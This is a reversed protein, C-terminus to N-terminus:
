PAPVKTAKLRLFRKPDGPAISLSSKVTQSATLDALITENIDTTQWGTSGLTTNWEPVLTVDDRNKARSYTISIETASSALLIPSPQEFTGPLSNLKYEVLNPISDLDSDGNFGPDAVSFGAIWADFTPNGSSTLTITFTQSTIGGAINTLNVTVPYAGTAASSSITGSVLGTSPNLSLGPPLTSGSALSFLPPDILQNTRLRNVFLENPGSNPAGPTVGNVPAEDDTVTLIKSVTTFSPASVSINVERTGDPIENNITAIPFTASKQGAPIVVTAPVTASDADSSTLQFTLNATFTESLTVTALSASPGSIESVSSPSLSLGLLINPSQASSILVNDIALADSAGSGPNAVVGRYFWRLYIVTSRNDFIAPLPVNEFRTRTGSPSSGSYYYGGSVTNWVTSSNAPGATTYQLFFEKNTPQEDVKVVDYSIKLSTLGNTAALGLVIFSSGTSRLGIQSGYNFNGTAAETGNGLTMVDDNTVSSSGTQNYSTWGNPYGSGFPGPTTDFNQPYRGNSLTVLPNLSKESFDEAPIHRATNSGTKLWNRGEDAGLDSDGFYFAAKGASVVGINPTAEISSGYSLSHVIASTGNALFLSGGSSGFFPWSGTATDFYTTNGSSIVMKGSFADTTDAPLLSNKPAAGNYIVLLTGAPVADWVATNRFIVSNGLSDRFRWNRLSGTKMVLIEAWQSNSGDNGHSFEHIIAHRTVVTEVSSLVLGSQYSYAAGPAAFAAPRLTINIAPSFSPASTTHGDTATIRCRWLKGANSPSVPLASAVAGALNIFTTEDTSSQWQYALTVPENEPDNVSVSTLQLQTDAYLQGESNQSIGTIAPTQNVVTVTVPASNTFKSEIDTAKAVYTVNGLPPSHIFSYPAVTDTGVLLNNAFLEVKAVTSPEGNMDFDAASVDVPIAVGPSSLSANTPSNITVVPPPNVPAVSAGFVTLEAFTLAGATANASGRDAIKLIWTGSSLEGWNRASNFTWDSYNANLDPRVEALRSVMGSPSTLSIELEGRSQHTISLRLTVHETRLNSVPLSFQRTIGTVSENPITVNLSPQTSVATKHTGLTVWTNPSAMSVAATADVLGAGFNHNFHFGASNDSWDPDSPLIKKASRILIEQVDRWGLNPNEKLMLAVIGAVQPTSASTGGFTSTYDGGTASSSTNYGSAGTNDTTVISLGGSGSSPASVILNAGPEAYDARGGNSNTAGIAITYISNAFGDYNSNDKVTSRGGNGGAWVFIVGKGGRGTLASNKFAALTLPGPAVLDLGTDNPGFSNSRVPIESLRFSMADAIMQDSTPGGILRMGVLTAAPATGAVGLMNNGRAGALGACATGHRDGLGPNPDNDIGNWDYDLTTNVNPSLDPHATELGDDVIGILIGQGRRENGVGAIGYRWTDEINVDTGPLAAGSARLHWQENIKTDDPLSKKTMQFALLVDASEVLDEGRLGDIKELAELPLEASFIVWEPAYSPRESVRLGHKKAVREAQEQPLKARIKSTVYRRNMKTKESDEIYAVPLVGQPANFAKMRLGLTRATAPPDLKVMRSKGDADILAIEDLAVKVTPEGGDSRYRLFAEASREKRAALTERSDGPFETTVQETIEGAAARENHLKAPWILMILAVVTFAAIIGLLAIARKPQPKEM